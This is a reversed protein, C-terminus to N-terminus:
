PPCEQRPQRALLSHGDVVLAQKELNLAANLDRDISHACKECCFVREDLPMSQIHGCGSCTKSSPFFRDVVILETVYLECKYTLQRRFEYMGLDAISKALCHNAMLGSVNLDEIVVQSHNKALHTTLKNLTDKRINATRAQLKAVKLQAKHRNKSGVVKRSAAKQLRALRQQSQRYPQPNPFTKGTSLTALTKIGLDVGCVSILKNTATPEIEYSFSVLWRDATRSIIATKPTLGQPLREYTKLVGLKPLQISRNNVKITGELTFSDHRGKRKFKPFGVRRGNNSKKRFFDSFASSLYRLAYQPSTKSVEYYWPNEAKVWMVLFKHLDIASPFRLKEEPNQQNYDLIKKCLDLGWNWAHRAVGAHKALQTRQYNNLKLETKFSIRM